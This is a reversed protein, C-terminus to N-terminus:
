NQAFYDILLQIQSKSFFNSDTSTFISYGERLCLLECLASACQVEDSSFREWAFDFFKGNQLEVKNLSFDELSWGFYKCCTLTNSGVISHYKAENIGYWVVTRVIASKASLCSIVFRASRKYIEDIIPLTDSLLPLLFNHTNFPLDMIRRLAKRWASCFADIFSNGLDWLECGYISSCYAKFLKLKVVLDLNRFYCLVNNAQGVFCNRRHFIDDTDTFNSTIIHGLHPYSKVNEIQKGNIFFCCDSYVSVFNRRASPTIVIFKSKQSNFLIDFDSAFVDCINLMKRMAFPIPAILVIDDAYAIAGCFTLGIFCGVGSLSLKILL